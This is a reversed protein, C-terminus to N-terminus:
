IMNGLNIQHSFKVANIIQTAKNRLRALVSDATSQTPRSHVAADADESLKDRLTFYVKHNQFVITSWHVSKLLKM